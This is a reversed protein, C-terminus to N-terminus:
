ITGQHGQVSKEIRAGRGLLHFHGDAATVLLLETGKRSGAVGSQTKPPWEMATPFVDQALTTVTSTENKTLNWM